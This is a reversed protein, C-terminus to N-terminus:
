RGPPGDFILNRGSPMNLVLNEVEGPLAFFVLALLCFAVICCAAGMYCANSRKIVGVVILVVAAFLLPWLGSIAFPLTHWSVVGLSMPGLLGAVALVVFGLMHFLPGYASKVPMVILCLGAIAVAVPWYQWWHTGQIAPPANFSVILFLLILGAAVAIRAPLPLYLSEDADTSYAVDGYTSSEAHAPTIEYPLEKGGVQPLVLWLVIYAFAGLGLTVVSVLVFLIRVVITDVNFSEAFGACVGGLWANRSRHLKSLEM